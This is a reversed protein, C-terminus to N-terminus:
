SRFAEFVELKGQPNMVFQTPQLPTSNMGCSKLWVRYHFTSPREHFKIDCEQCLDMRCCKCRIMNSDLAPSTCWSCYNPFEGNFSIIARYCPERFEQWAKDRRILRENWAEKSLAKKKFSSREGLEQASAGANQEIIEMIGKFLNRGSISM